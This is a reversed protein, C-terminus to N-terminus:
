LTCSGGSSASGAAKGLVTDLDHTTTGDELIFYPIGVRGNAKADNFLPDTDRAKLYEKLDTLSSSLNVFNISAKAESLKNLAYLTGPCLHSGIVKVNM